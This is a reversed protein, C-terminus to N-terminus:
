FITSRVDSCVFSGPAVLVRTQAVQAQELNAPRPTSRVQASPRVPLRRGAGRRDPGDHPSRGIVVAVVLQAAGAIIWPARLAATARCRVTWGPSWSVASRAGRDPDGGLRLVPLRQQGARAAPRPHDGPAPQGHDREVPRHHVHVPVAARRRGGLEVRPRHRHHLDWWGVADAGAVRGLRDAQDGVGRGLWRRCRGGRRGHVYVAFEVVSTGLVEQGFLVVVAGSINGLLNLVGLTIALTRLLDHAWLWRFGEALEVKFPRASSRRPRASGPAADAAIAFILGASVAFTAADVVFPLAFGVALLLGALPPGAFNNAVMEASYLQGNAQELQPRRSSRPCSRRPRLQRLAGRVHRAAADGRAALVYLFWETGVVQDVDDPAPLVGQRALVALAVGLTIVARVANAGIM